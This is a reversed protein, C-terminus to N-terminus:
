GQEAKSTKSLHYNRFNLYSVKKYGLLPYKYL